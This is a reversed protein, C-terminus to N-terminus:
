EDGEGLAYLSPSLPEPLPLLAPTMLVPGGEVKTNDGEDSGGRPCTCLMILRKEEGRRGVEGNTTDSSSSPSPATPVGVVTTAVGNGGFFDLEVARDEGATAGFEKREGSTFPLPAPPTAGNLQVEDAGEEAARESCGEAPSSSGDGSRDPKTRANTRGPETDGDRREGPSPVPLPPPLPEGNAPPGEEGGGGEESNFPCAPAAPPVAVAAPVEEVVVVVGDLRTDEEPGCALFFLFFPLFLPFFPFFFRHYIISSTSM